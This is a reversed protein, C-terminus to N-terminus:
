IERTKEVYIYQTCRTLQAAKAKYNLFTYQKPQSNNIKSKVNKLARLHRLHAEKKSQLDLIRNSSKLNWM